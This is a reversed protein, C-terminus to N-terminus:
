LKPKVIQITVKAKDILEQVIASKNSHRKYAQYRLWEHQEETLTFNSRIMKSM